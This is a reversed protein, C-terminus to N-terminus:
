ARLPNKDYLGRFRDDRFYRMRRLRMPRTGSKLCIAKDGSMQMIEDPAMLPQHTYHKTRSGLLGGGASRTWYAVTKRGLSESLYKATDLDSVGFFLQTTNALLGKWRPFVGRLQSFDQVILWLRIGYGRLIPLWEEIKKMYGLQGFEDILLAVPMTDRKQAQMVAEVAVGLIVRLFRSYTDILESPMVVYITMKRTTVEDLVLSSGGFAAAIASHDMFRLHRGVTTLLSGLEEDGASMAVAANRTINPLDEYALLAPMVEELFQDKPVSLLRRVESFTPEDGIAVHHLVASILANASEEFHQSSGGTQGKDSAAVMSAMTASRNVVSDDEPANRLWLLPNIGTTPERTVNFPDIIVVQQGLERRRRATIAVLEGKPDFVIMSGRYTLLNPVVVSVGKGAGSRACVIAHLEERVVQGGLTGMEFGLKPNRSPARRAFRASGMMQPVFTGRAIGAAGLLGLSGALLTMLAAISAADRGGPRGILAPVHLVAHWPHDLLYNHAGYAVYLASTFIAALVFGGLAAAMFLAARRM